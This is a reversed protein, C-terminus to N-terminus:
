FDAYNPSTTQEEMMSPTKKIHWFMQIGSIVRVKFVQKGQSKRFDFGRPKDIHFVMYGFLNFIAFHEFFLITQIEDAPQNLVISEFLLKLYTWNLPLTAALLSDMVERPWEAKKM